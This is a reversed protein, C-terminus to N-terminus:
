RKYQEIMSDFKQRSRGYDRIAVGEEDFDNEDWGYTKLSRRDKEILDKLEEWMAERLGLVLIVARQLQMYLSHEGLVSVDCLPFLEVAKAGGITTGEEHLYAVYHRQQKPSSISDM